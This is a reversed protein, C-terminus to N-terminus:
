FAGDCRKTSRGTRGTASRLDTDPGLAIRPRVRVSGGDGLRRSSPHLRSSVLACGQWASLISLDGGGFGNGSLASSLLPTLVWRQPLRVHFSTV